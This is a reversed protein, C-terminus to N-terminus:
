RASRRPPPFLEIGDGRLGAGRMGRDARQKNLIDQFRALGVLALEDKKRLQLRLRANGPHREAPRVPRKEGRVLEAIEAQFHHLDALDVAHDFAPDVLILHDDAIDLELLAPKFARIVFDGILFPVLLANM